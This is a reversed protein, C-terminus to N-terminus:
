VLNFEILAGHGPMSFIVPQSLVQALAWRLAGLKRGTWVEEGSTGAGGVRQIAWSNGGGHAGGEGQPM